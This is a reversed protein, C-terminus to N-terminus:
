DRMVNITGICESTKIEDPKPKKRFELELSEKWQRLTIWGTSLYESLSENKRMNQREQSRTTVMCEKEHVLSIKRLEESSIRSLADAAANDTGKKYFVDFSYDELALRFKTLRSSPDTM